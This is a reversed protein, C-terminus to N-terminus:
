EFVGRNMEYARYRLFGEIKIRSENLVQSNGYQPKFNRSNRVKIESKLEKKRMQRRRAKNVTSKYWAKRNQM